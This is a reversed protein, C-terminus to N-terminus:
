NSTEVYDAETYNLLYSPFGFESVLINSVNNATDVEKFEFKGGDFCNARLFVHRFQARSMLNCGTMPFLINRENKYEILKNRLTRISIGLKKAVQTRNGSFTFMAHIIHLFEVEKLPFVPTEPTLDHSEKSTEM